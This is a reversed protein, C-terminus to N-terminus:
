KFSWLWDWFSVTVIVTLLESLIWEYGLLKM